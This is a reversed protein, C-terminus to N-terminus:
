EKRKRVKIRGQFMDGDNVYSSYAFLVAIYISLLGLFTVLVLLTYMLLALAKIVEIAASDSANRAIKAKLSVIILIQIKKNVCIQTYILIL